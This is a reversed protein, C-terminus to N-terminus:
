INAKLYEILDDMMQISVKYNFNPNLYIAIGHFAKEYFAVNVDVGAKRLREAYLIGISYFPFISTYISLGTKSYILSIQLAGEDKLGDWECIIFYAKALGRLSEEDAFLPSIRSDTLKSLADALNKDRKLVSNKDLKTPYYVSMREKYNDYYSKGTKYKDPINDIDLYSMIKKRLEEDEILASQMNLNVAEEIEPTLKTIGLFWLLRKSYKLPSIL